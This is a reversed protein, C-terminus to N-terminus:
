PGCIQHQTGWVVNAQAHKPSSIYLCYLLSKSFLIAFCFSHFKDIYWFSVCVPRKMINETSVFM